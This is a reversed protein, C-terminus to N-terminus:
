RWPDFFAISESAVTWLREVDPLAQPFKEADWPQAVFTYATDGVVLRANRQRWPGGTFDFILAPHGGITTQVASAADAQETPPQLVEEPSMSVLPYSGVTLSARVSDFGDYPGLEPGGVIGGFFDPNREFDAPYRLCYGERLDVLTKYDATETPCVDAPRVVTRSNQPPFFVISQTVTEWALTTEAALESFDQPQPWLTVRYKISNAVVFAGRQPVMAPLDDVVRAPHGGIVTDTHPFDINLDFSYLDLWREAYQPGDLGDAPGNYAVTLNVAIGHMPNLQIISGALRVEEQPRIEGPHVTLTAPYLFCYGNEVSIYRITDATADPCVSEPDIAPGAVASPAATPIENRPAPYDDSNAVNVPTVATTATAPLTVSTVAAVPTARQPEGRCGSLLALALLLPAFYRANLM